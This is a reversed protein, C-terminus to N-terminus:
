CDKKKKKSSNKNKNETNTLNFYTRYHEAKVSMTHFRSWYSNNKIYERMFNHIILFQLRLTWIETCVAIQEEKKNTKSELDEQHGWMRELFHLGLWTEVCSAPVLMTISNFNKAEEKQTLVTFHSAQPLSHTHAHTRTHMRIHTHKSQVSSSPHAYTDIHIHTCRNLLHTLTKDLLHTCTFTHSFSLALTSTLPPPSIFPLLDTDLQQSSPGHLFMPFIKLAHQTIKHKWVGGFESISLLIKSTQIHDKLM